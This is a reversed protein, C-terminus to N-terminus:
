LLPAIAHDVAVEVLTPRDTTAFARDFAPRLGSPETVRATACGLGGAIAVFDLGPIDLGPIGTAVKEFGAFAKLIAYQENRLVIFVVPAQERVATWLAQVSYLAAGDGLVCVVRRDPQALQVGVAAPLCFGLGGSGAHFSSGPRSVRIQDAVDHAMSAAEALLIADDPMANALSQLALAPPMPSRSEPQSPAKRPPPPTRGPSGPLLPLLADIALALDSVVSTGVPARAAEDPDDTVQFLTTGPKLVPGPVYPYYNFVASGLVLVADYAALREACPELAAPLGGQFLPHNTPFGPRWANPASWVPAGVQEALRVMGDWAQDLDIGPGVVLAPRRGQAFGAALDRLAAPDPGCRQSVARVPVPSAPADWDDMPISVFVPGRPPQMAVHYARAIAAPVGEARSPEISWKVYPKPFEAAEKAFLWPEMAMMARVQQGATIVLPTRNRYATVVAGLANGLGPAAHINVLVAKRTAQAFGDAMSVASAEQLALVYRFDQPFEHLMPLETSGPNGFVTTMGLARLLAFTETRVTGTRAVGPQISRQLPGASM